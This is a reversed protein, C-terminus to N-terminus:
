RETWTGRRRPAGGRGGRRTRRRRSDRRACGTRPPEGPGRLRTAQGGSVSPPLLHRCDVARRPLPDRAVGDVVVRALGGLRPAGEHLLLGARRELVHRVVRRGPSCPPFMSCKMPRRGPASRRPPGAAPPRRAREPRTRRAARWPPPCARPSSCGRCSSAGRPRRPSSSRSPRRSAARGPTRTRTPGRPARRRRTARGLLKSSMLAAASVVVREPLSRSM